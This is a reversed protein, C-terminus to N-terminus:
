ISIVTSNLNNIIKKKTKMQNNLNKKEFGLKFLFHILCNKM